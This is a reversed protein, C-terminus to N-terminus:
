KLLVLPNHELCEPLKHVSVVLKTKGEGPLTRCSNTRTRVGSDRLRSGIPEIPQGKDMVTPGMKGPSPIVWYSDFYGHAQGLYNDVM